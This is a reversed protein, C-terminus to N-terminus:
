QEQDRLIDMKALDICGLVTAVPMGEANDYVAEVIADVLKGTRDTDRGEGEVPTLSVVNM